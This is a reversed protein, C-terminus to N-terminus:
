RRGKRKFAYLRIGARPDAKFARPREKEGYCLRLADGKVEYIGKAIVASGSPKGEAQGPPAFILDLERPRKAPDMQMIRGVLAPGRDRKWTFLAGEIRLGEGRAAWAGQLRELDAVIARSGPVPGAGKGPKGERRAVGKVRRLVYLREGSGPEFWRDPGPHPVTAFARPRSLWGFCVKLVDGKLEYIGLSPMTDKRVPGFDMARPSRTPDIGFTVRLGTPSVKNRATWTDGSFTWTLDADEIKGAPVPKGAYEISVVRWTGQLRRLESKRLDEKAAPAPRPASATDPLLRAGVGALGLVLAGFLALIKRSLMVPSGGKGLATLHAPVVGGILVVKALELTRCLLPGPVGAGPALATATLLATLSVGREGLASRLLGRARTLRGELTKLKVGLEAAAEARGCGELVCLVFAARCAEPLRQVEEDLIAQVERWGAEVEPRAREAPWGKGEHEARRASARKANQATRRAVGHLWAALSERKRISGAKRALLLFTAQFADEADEKSRLQRRCVRLVMPGHREVLARFASQDNADVFDRLLDGDTPGRHRPISALPTRAM